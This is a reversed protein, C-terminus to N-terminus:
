SILGDITPATKMRPMTVRPVPQEGAPAVGLLGVVLLTVNAIIGVRTEM